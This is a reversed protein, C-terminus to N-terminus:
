GKGRIGKKQSSLMQQIKETFNKEAQASLENYRNRIDEIQKDQV